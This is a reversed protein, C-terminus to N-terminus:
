GARKRGFARGAEPAPASIPAERKALARAIAAEAAAADRADEAAGAKGFAEEYASSRSLAVGDSHFVRFQDDPDMTHIQAIQMRLRAGRVIRGVGGVVVVLVVFAWFL